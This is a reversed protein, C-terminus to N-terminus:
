RSVFWAAVYGELGTSDKVKLWQNNAGIKKEGGAEAITLTTGLPLYRILTASSIVPKSRFSVSQATTKVTSSSSATPPSSTEAQAATSGSAYKVYWAAVYGDRGTEDRVKLWQGMVGIKKIAQNSPELSTVKETPPIRRILTEPSIVTRTRFAINDTPILSLAGAPLSTTAPEPKAPAAAAPSLVGKEESLYWAAVYGQKKEPDQVHLWQGTVGIKGKTTAKTELSTLKTEGVLRKILYGGVSPEARFALDDEAVYVPISDKPVAVPKVEKPPQPPLGMADFWLVASIESELKKGQYKYRQTLLVDKGPGDGGYKYPDYLVYDDGRKEKILVFHTQVGAKKNWDVQVIVPKGAAVAADIQAIPAPFNECPQMDKYIVNPYAYPLMSPIFFAGQFGGKQKMKENVTEPTENYGIGNLMMTVSTLLCGWGGITENSNGLKTKAWKKDNQYLNDTKFM